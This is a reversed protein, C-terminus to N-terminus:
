ILCANGADLRLMGAQRQFICSDGAIGEKRETITQIDDNICTRSAHNLWAAAHAVRFHNSRSILAAHHHHESAHAVKSVLNAVSSKVYLNVYFATEM